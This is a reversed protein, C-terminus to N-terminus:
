GQQPRILLLLKAALDDLAKGLAAGWPATGFAPSGVVLEVAATAEIRFTRTAIPLWIGPSPYLKAVYEGSAAAPPFVQNWTWTVCPNAVTSSALSSTWSPTLSGVPHIVVYFTNPPAPDLYGFTVTEGSFYVSKDTRFGGLCVDLPFHLTVEVSAPGSAEGRARLVDSAGTALRVVEARLDATVSAGRVTFMFITFAMATAQFREVASLILFEAGMARAAIHWNERTPLLGNQVLWAQLAGPPIVLFGHPSLRGVLMDGLGPGLNALGTGAEDVFPAVAIVPAVAGAGVVAWGLVIVMWLRRMLDGGVAMIPPASDMTDRGNHRPKMTAEHRSKRLAGFSAGKQGRMQLASSVCRLDEALAERDKKRAGDPAGRVRPVRLGEM